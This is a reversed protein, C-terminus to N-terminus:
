EDEDGEFDTADYNDPELDDDAPDDDDHDVDDAAAISIPSTFSLPPLQLVLLQTKGLPVEIRDANASVWALFALLMDRWRANRWAKTFSRRLRHMRRPDALPNNGNESFILRSTLSVYAFPTFRVSLSVGFHWHVRRKESVGQIQRQGTFGPWRFAVKQKPAIELPPWWAAQRDGMRYSRLGANLFRAELGTRILESTINRAEGTRIRLPEFWGEALFEGLPKEGILSFPLREGFHATLDDSDAFSLFGHHHRVLPWPAKRCREDALDISVGGSFDYFNVTSPMEAIRLWNSLLTEPSPALRKANVLYLERWLAGRDTPSRREVHMAELLAVLEQLGRAWGQEVFDIYQAQAIRFPSDFTELRIPIIFESDKLAKAVQTAIELENRPGQKTAAVQTAVFVVKRADNRLVNELQRQWDSGGHLRLVDAWVDYGLAELKAGLWITFLNDEPNAHSIFLAKRPKVGMRYLQAPAREKLQRAPEPKNRVNYKAAAPKSTDVRQPDQDEGEPETETVTAALVKKSRPV